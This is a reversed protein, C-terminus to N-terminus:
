NGKLKNEYRKLDLQYKKSNYIQSSPLPYAYVKKRIFELFEVPHTKEFNPYKKEFSIFKQLDNEKEM